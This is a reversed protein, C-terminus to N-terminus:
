NARILKKKKKEILGFFVGSCIIGLAVGYTWGSSVSISPLLLGMIAGIGAVISVIGAGAFFNLAFETKNFKM